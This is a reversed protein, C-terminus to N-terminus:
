LLFAHYMCVCVLVMKSVSTNLNRTCISIILSRPPHLSTLIFISARSFEQSLIGPHGHWVFIKDVKYMTMGASM